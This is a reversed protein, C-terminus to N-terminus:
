WWRKMGCLLDLCRAHIQLRDSPVWTRLQCCNMAYKCAFSAPIFVISRGNGPRLTTRKWMPRPVLAEQWDESKASWTVPSHSEYRARAMQNGSFSLCLLGKRCSWENFSIFAQNNKMKLRVFSLSVDDPKLDAHPESAAQHVDPYLQKSTETVTNVCRRHVKPSSSCSLHISRDRLVRKDLEDGLTCWLHTDQLIRKDDLEDGLTCWLHKEYNEHTVARISTLMWQRGKAYVTPMCIQICQFVISYINHNCQVGSSFAHIGQLTGVLSVMNDSM